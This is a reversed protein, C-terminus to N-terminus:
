SNTCTIAELDHKIQEARKSTLSNIIFDRNQAYLEEPTQALAHELAQCFQEYSTINPCYKRMNLETFEQNDPYRGILACGLIASEYFRPTPYDLTLYGKLDAKYKVNNKRSSDIGPSSVLSVKASSLFKIFEERDLINGINGRLTSIYSNHVNSGTDSYVYDINKHENAYRIMYEHLVPNRRGMQIVDVTKTRYRTFNESFYRDSVSLPMYRVNMAPAKAQLLKLVDISTVYFLKLAKLQRIIREAEDDTWVDIFVPLSNHVPLSSIDSVMMLFMLSLNGNIDQTLVCEKMRERISYIKRKVQRLFPFFKKILEKLASPPKPKVIINSVPVEFYAAIDEEWEYCVHFQVAYASLVKESLVESIM